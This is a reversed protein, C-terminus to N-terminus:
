KGAGHSKSWYILFFVKKPPFYFNKEGERVDFLSFPFFFFNIKWKVKQSKSKVKLFTPKRSTFDPRTRIEASDFAQIKKVLFWDLWSAVRPVQDLQQSVKQFGPIYFDM